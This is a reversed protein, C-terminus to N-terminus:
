RKGIVAEGRPPNSNTLTISQSSQSSQSPMLPSPISKSSSRELPQFLNFTEDNSSLEQDFTTLLIM